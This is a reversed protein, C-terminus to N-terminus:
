EEEVLLEIEGKQLNEIYWAIAQEKASEESDADFACGTEIYMFYTM